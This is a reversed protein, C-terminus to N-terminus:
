WGETAKEAVFGPGHIELAMLGWRGSERCTISVREGVRMMSLLEEATVSKEGSWTKVVWEGRVVVERGDVVLVGRQPDVAKVIGTVVLEEGAESRGGRWGGEEAGAKWLIPTFLSAYLPFTAVAVAVVIAAVMGPKVSM